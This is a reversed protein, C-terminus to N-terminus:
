RAEGEQKPPTPLPMPHGFTVFAYARAREEALPGAFLAQYIEGESADDVAEVVWGGLTMEDKAVAVSLPNERIYEALMRRGRLRPTLDLVEGM